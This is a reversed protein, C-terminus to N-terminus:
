KTKTPPEQGIPVQPLELKETEGTQPNTFTKGDFEKRKRILEKNIITVYSQLAEAPDVAENVADLYAFNIYRAIIYSGPYNPVAALQEFQEVLADSEATSWSLLGLAQMNATAYKAAPGVLAVMENGYQAQIDAGSQWRMFTWAADKDKTGELMVVSTVTAVSRRDLIEEGDENVRLTGPLSTFEWLGSIESAFVILQNYTTCYDAIMLPMEGTRFRNAADFSVPFSYDTYFRVLNKFAGLAEDTNLGIHAGAYKEDYKEDDEYLWLSGGNQYIFINIAGAYGLGIEMNNAQFTPAISLLDDWTKPLEIGEKTLIDKRYFLMPFNTTEPLGYSKGYLTLPVMNAYNYQVQETKLAKGDEDYYTNTKPDYKDYVYGLTDDFTDFYQIPLVASRIAYNVADSSGLGLYVDPGQGALVSPLITGAAVLKLNVSVSKGIEKQAYDSFKNDIMTRWILSQDRGTALWVDIGVDSKTGETVGMSNYDVIFSYVFSVTEFKVSEWFNSSSRPLKANVGQVQIFDLPLGQAKSSNIWTGLTGIYSKLSSLNAAIEEEDSGMLHLLRAVNDLQAVHSGSSGCLEKLQKSVKTLNISEVLLNRVTGPMIQNFNYSRYEDPTAGTLKLINLYCENIVKLSEQVSQIIEALQGLSVEFYVRYTVGKKFYFEFKQEGDGVASTKWDKSYDFRTEVAEQFPLSPTGDEYGYMGDDSWLKIARSVFMGELTNQHYRLAFTYFGDSNVEFEYAAWQGMSSYGNKGLVNYYQAAANTPSNIPSSRDNAMYVSTDSVFSPTEAELRISDTGYVHAGGLQQECNKIYEEYTITTEPPLLTIGGIILPERVGTLTITREGKPLYIEFYDAYYGESDSCYYTNWEPVQVIDPRLDNQNKDQKFAHKNELYDFIGNADGDHYKYEWNKSFSLSRAESFLIQGDIHMMREITSVSGKESNAKKVSYYEFRINYFGSEPVDFTWKVSGTDPLYVAGERYEDPDAFDGEVADRIKNDASDGSALYNTVDIDLTSEARMYTVIEEDKLRSILKTKTADDLMLVAVESDVDTEEVVGEKLLTQWVDYLRGYKQNELDRGDNFMARLIKVRAEADYRLTSATTTIYSKYNEADLRDSVVFDSDSDSSGSTEETEAAAAPFACLMGPVVMLLVLLLSVIRKFGTNKM